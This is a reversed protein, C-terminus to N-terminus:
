AAQASPSRAAGTRDATVRKIREALVEPEDHFQLAGHARDVPNTPLHGVAYVGRYVGILHGKAVWREVTWPDM